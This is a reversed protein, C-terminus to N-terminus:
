KLHSQTLHMIEHKLEPYKKVINLITQFATGRVSPSKHIEEWVSLSVDFLKGEQDENLEMRALIKLLERQHGDEKSIIAALMSDTYPRLAADNDKMYHGILWAARWSQPTEDGLSIKITEEYMEPHKKLFAVLENKRLRGTLIDDLSKLGARILIQCIKM